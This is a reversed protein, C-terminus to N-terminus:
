TAVTGIWTGTKMQGGPAMLFVVKFKAVKGKVVWVQIVVVVLGSWLIILWNVRVM